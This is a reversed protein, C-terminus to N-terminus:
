GERKEFVLQMRPSQGQAPQREDFGSCILRCALGYSAAQQMIAEPAYLQWSFVDAGGSAYELRVELRDGQMTKTESIQQGAYTYSRTGQTRAFFDPQYIDLILRGAAELKQGLQRIIEANTAADFYGFSQWLILAAQYRGPVSALDRMDHQLYTVPRGPRRRATALAEASRDVGVVTYGADALAQAHRGQGCCLDLVRAYAPLPLWRTLFAVEGATQAPAITDMFLEFWSASYSNEAEM